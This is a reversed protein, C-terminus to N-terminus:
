TLILRNYESFRRFTPWDFVAANPDLHFSIHKAQVEKLSAPIKTGPPLDLSPSMKKAMKKDSDRRM